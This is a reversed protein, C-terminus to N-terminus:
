QVRELFNKMSWRAMEISRDENSPLLTCEDTFEDICFRFNMTKLFDHYRGSFWSYSGFCSALGKIFRQTLGNTFSEAYFIGRSEKSRGIVVIESDWKYITMDGYAVDDSSIILTETMEVLNLSFTPFPSKDYRYKLLTIPHAKLKYEREGRISFTRDEYFYNPCEVWDYKTAIKMIESRLQKSFEDKLEIMRRLIKDILLM